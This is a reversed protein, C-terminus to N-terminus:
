VKCLTKSCQVFNTASQVSTLWYSNSYVPIPCVKTINWTQQVMRPNVSREKYM